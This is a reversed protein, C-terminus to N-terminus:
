KGQERLKKQREELHNVKSVGNNITENIRNVESKHDLSICPMISNTIHKMGNVYHNFRTDHALLDHFDKSFDCVECWGPKLELFGYKCTSCGHPGYKNCGVPKLMEISPTPTSEHIFMGWMHIWFNKPHKAQHEAAGWEANGKKELANGQADFMEKLPLSQNEYLAKTRRIHPNNSYMFRETYLFRGETHMTNRLVHNWHHYRAENDNRFRRLYIYDARGTQLFDLCEHMWQKDYGSESQHLCTWDSELFFTFELEKVLDNARNVGPGCGLDKDSRLCRFEVGHEKPLGHKLYEPTSDVSGNDHIGFILPRYSCNDLFARINQELYQRRDGNTLVAIGVPQSM